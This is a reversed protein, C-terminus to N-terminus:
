RSPIELTVAARLRTGDPARAIVAIRNRGQELRIDAVFRDGELRQVPQQRAPSNAAAATVVVEDLPRIDGIVDFGTVYVKSPGAREPHPSIRIQGLGRKVEVTYEPDYGPNHEISVFQPPNRTELELPVEVADNAREILTTVRWRGDFALNAGSGVYTNDPGPALQLSTTAVGPDDVPTFRLTVRNARIPASSDYDVADVVFRNPGPQDSPTTLRVRVTTGFDSGSVSLGPPAGGAPPPLTGLMSAAVLAGAMLSLELSGTRRLLRLSTAAAPVSRWRNVAGCAGIAIFLTMKLLVTRGYGTSILESWSRSWSSLVGATLMIGTAAVLLLGITAVNSFRRVAASMTRSSASSTNLLLVALGGVWVAVAAFHAWQVAVTALPPWRGGAAAHGNAVHAALVALAALAVVAMAVRRFRLPALRVSALAIAAVALAVARWILARGVSTKLLVALSASAASRQAYALLTLGLIAVLWGWAAVAFEISGGYGAVGATAAGLLAVLGLILIGRALIEFPSAPPDAARAGPSAPTMRVGFAYAGATAHGDVASVIRWSVVYVGTPLPRVRVALSLPDGAVSEPRGIQQAPGGALDLVRISSLSPEPRESFYLRVIAPTDGLTAGELPDSLRPGAHARANDPILAGLLGALAIVAVGRRRM